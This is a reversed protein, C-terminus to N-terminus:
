GGSTRKIRNIFAQMQDASERKMQSTVSAYIDMTTAIKSHGMNEQLTKVEIGSRIAAVAYSHRLDHFRMKPLGAEDIIKVFQNYVTRHILHHGLEDAFVFDGLADGEWCPGAKLKWEAQRARQKRLLDMVFGPPVITRINDTKTPNLAYGGKTGNVRQLQKEILISGDEFDICDWTLGLLEGQRAGTFLDVLFLTEYPHGQLADMFRVMSEDDLPHKKFPKQHEKEYEASNKRRLKCADAPNVSLGEANSSTNIVLQQLARHLISHINLVSKWSLPPKGDRGEALSNYFSQIDHTTLDKLKMSGLAPVIYYNIQKNYLYRTSDKVDVLFERQWIDLWDSLKMKSPDRYTGKDRAAIAATLKNRVDEKTKGYVSRSITKGTKSDYGLTFRGEWIGDKERQRISGGGKVGRKKKSQEEARGATEAKKRAM